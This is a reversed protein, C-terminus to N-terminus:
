AAAASKTTKTQCTTLAPLVAQPRRSHRRSCCRSSDDEWTKGTSRHRHLLPPATDWLKAAPTGTRGAEQETRWSSGACSGSERSLLAVRCNPAFGCIYDAFTLNLLCFIAISTAFRILNSGVSALNEYRCSRFFMITYYEVWYEDTTTSTLSDCDRTAGLRPVKQNEFCQTFISSVLLQRRDKM